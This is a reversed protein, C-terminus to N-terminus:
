LPYSPRETETPHVVAPTQVSYVASIVSTKQPKITIWEMPKNNYANQPTSSHSTHDVKCLRLSWLAIFFLVLMTSWTIRCWGRNPPPLKKASTQDVPKNRPIRPLVSTSPSLYVKLTSGTHQNMVEEDSAHTYPTRPTLASTPEAHHIVITPISLPQLASPRITRSAM